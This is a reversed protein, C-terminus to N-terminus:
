SSVWGSAEEAADQAHVAAGASPDHDVVRWAGILMDDAMLLHQLRMGIPSALAQGALLDPAPLPPDTAGVMLPSISMCMENLHPLWEGLLSPGGETLIRRWGRDALWALAAAPEVTPGDLVVVETVASLSERRHPESTESTLVVTSGPGRSFVPADPPVSLSNSIIVTTPVPALALARRHEAFQEAVRPPGYNEARVTGAGVVLAECTARLLKLVSRDAPSSISGSRGDGGRASGDLAIVMNARVWQRDPWDYLNVLQDDDVDGPVPPFLQLM